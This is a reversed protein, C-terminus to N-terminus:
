RYLAPFTSKVGSVKPKDWRVIYPHMPNKTFFDQHYAEAPFFNGSEIKTVIPAPYVKAKNLQGIYASAIKAQVPTQAFIASRYSPGTDPGQQDLQTPNHAASFYIRLLTGYSILKPDYIIKIAEAHGTTETSVQDYTATSAKGGAYGSVVSKVGRIHEFVAEMGWFCGGALIATAQPAPQVPDFAAAAIIVPKEAFGPAAIMAVAAAGVILLPIRTKLQLEM